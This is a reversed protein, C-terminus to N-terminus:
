LREGENRGGKKVIGESFNKLTEIRKTRLEM